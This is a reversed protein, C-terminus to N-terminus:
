SGPATGEIARGWDLLPKARMTFDVLEEVLGPGHIGAPDIAHRVAFHRNRIAAVLDKDAVHEFGRPTRKMGGEADLELGNKGLAAVVARFTDPHSSIAKRMATLLEPAPQWWAVGAFCRELGIHVFFVGQEMKTGDPSLIASLHRNYPRKDKAFRVDRNIRFLSKKRDGRLGLGAQAFRLTLTEVLDGLPDRLEKEFLDRNELFWERSQHFDLAKLFPIAKPGFGKFAGDTM